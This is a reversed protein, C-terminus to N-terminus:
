QERCQHRAGAPQREQFGVGLGHTQEDFDERRAHRRRRQQAIAIILRGGPASGECSESTHYTCSTSVDTM